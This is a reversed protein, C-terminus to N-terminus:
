KRQRFHWHRNRHLPLGSSLLVKALLRIAIVFLERGTGLKGATKQAHRQVFLKSTIFRLSSIRLLKYNIALPVILGIDLTTSLYSYIDTWFGHNNFIVLTVHVLQYCNNDASLQIQLVFDFLAFVYVCYDGTYPSNLMLIEIASQLLCICTITTKLSRIEFRESLLRQELM